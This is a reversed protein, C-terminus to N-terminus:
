FNSQSIKWKSILTHDFFTESIQFLFLILLFSDFNNEDFNLIINQYFSVFQLIKGMRNFSFNMM